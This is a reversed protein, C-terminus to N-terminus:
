HILAYIFYLPINNLWLFSSVGVHTFRSFMKSLVLLLDCYIMYHIIGNM